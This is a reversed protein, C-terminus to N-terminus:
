GLEGGSQGKGFFTFSGVAVLVLAVWHLNTCVLLTLPFHNLLTISFAGSNITMQGFMYSLLYSAFGFFAAFLLTLFYFVPETALKYSTIGLGIILAILIFLVIYDFMNMGRDFGAKAKLATEDTLVGATSMSSMTSDYILYGLICLFGFIVLFVVVSVYDGFQGKRSKLLSTLYFMGGM